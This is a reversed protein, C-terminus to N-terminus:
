VDFRKKFMSFGQKAYIAYRKSKILCIKKM